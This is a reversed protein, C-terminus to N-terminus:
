NENLKTKHYLRQIPNLLPTNKQASDKLQSIPNYQSYILNRM